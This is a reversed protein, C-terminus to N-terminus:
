TPASSRNRYMLICWCAAAGAAGFAVVRAPSIGGGTKGDKSLPTEVFPPSFICAVAMVALGCLLAMVSTPIDYINSRTELIESVDRSSPVSSATTANHKFSRVLGDQHQYSGPSTSLRHEALEPPWQVSPMDGSSAVLSAPPALPAMPAHPLDFKHTRNRIAQLMTVTDGKVVPKDYCDLIHRTAHRSCLVFQAHITPPHFRIIINQQYYV